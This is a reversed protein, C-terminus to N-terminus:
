FRFGTSLKINRDNKVIGFGVISGVAAGLPIGLVFEGLGSTYCNSDIDNACDNRAFSSWIIPTVLAGVLALTIVIAKEQRNFPKSNGDELKYDEDDFNSFSKNVLSLNDFDIYSAHKYSIDSAHCNFACLIMLILVIKSM